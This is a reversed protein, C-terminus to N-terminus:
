NTICGKSASGVLKKYKNLYSNKRTEYDDTEYNDIAVCKQIRYYGPVELIITNTIANIEVIDGNEIYAIPGNDFAEPTIHGILFGKSGGSWRGDTLLAVHESIGAGVLASSPKLMEPM